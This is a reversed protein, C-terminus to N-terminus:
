LHRHLHALARVRGRAPHVCVEDIRDYVLLFQYGHMALDEWLCDLTPPLVYQGDLPTLFLNRTPFSSNRAFASCATHTPLGCRRPSGDRAQLQGTVRISELLFRIAL